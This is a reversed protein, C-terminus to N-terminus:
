TIYKVFELFSSDKTTVDFHNCAYPVILDAMMATHDVITNEDSSLKHPVVAMMKWLLLFTASKYIKSRSFTKFFDLLQKFKAFTQKFDKSSAFENQLDHM